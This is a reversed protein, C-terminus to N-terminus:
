GVVDQAKGLGAPKVQFFCSIHHALTAPKPFLVPHPPNFWNIPDCGKVERTKTM